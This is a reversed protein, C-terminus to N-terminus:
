STSMRSQRRSADAAAKEDNIEQVLADVESDDLFRLKGGPEVVTLEISKSGAEVSETLAKISLKIAEKGSVEQYNKELYERVQLHDFQQVNTDSIYRSKDHKCIATSTEDHVQAQIWVVTSSIMMCLSIPTAASQLLGFIYWMM